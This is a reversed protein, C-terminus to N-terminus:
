QSSSEKPPATRRAHELHRRAESHQPDLRLAEELAQIGEPYRRQSLLFMGYNFQLNPQDPALQVAQAFHEGAEAPRNQEMLLIALNFHAKVSWPSYKL